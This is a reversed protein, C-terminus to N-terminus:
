QSSSHKATDYEESEATPTPDGWRQYSRNKLSQEKLHPPDQCSPGIHKLHWWHSPNLYWNSCLFNNFKTPSLDKHILFLPVSFGVIIQWVTKTKITLLPSIEWNEWKAIMSKYTFNNCHFKLFCKIHFEISYYRKITLLKSKIKLVFYCLNIKM